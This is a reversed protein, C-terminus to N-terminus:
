SVPVADAWTVSTLKSVALDELRKVGFVAMAMMGVLHEQWLSTMVPDPEVDNATDFMAVIAQNSNTITIQESEGAIRTADLLLVEGEELSDSPMADIGWINGGFIGLEPFLQGGGLDTMTAAQRLAKPHFAFMLRSESTPNIAEILARLDLVVADADSGTSTITPTSGDVMESFFKGDVAATVGRRLERSIHKESTTAELLEETMVILAAAKFPQLQAKTVDLRSVPVPNGEGVIFGSADATAIGIRKQLPVRVMEGDLLRYFVSSNRLVSIFAATVARIDALAETDNTSNPNVAAKLIRQVRPSALQKAVEDPEHTQASLADGSVQNIAKCRLIQALAASDPSIHRPNSIIAKM